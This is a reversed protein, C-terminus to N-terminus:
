VFTNDVMLWAGYRHATEALAALDVITMTPNAPTEAYALRAKPHERFAQEWSEPTPDHVWVVQIGYQPAMDHLFTFTAGYLAEMAIITDGSKVCALIASTIAAMGSGFVMGAVLEDPNADPQARLLDLGELAAYKHALQELNPNDMRTYIYGPVEGKWIAVGTAVDPFSFTSTQFIPSVHAHLPNEGEAIHNVLTSLGHKPDIKGM